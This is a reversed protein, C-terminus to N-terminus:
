ESLSVLKGSARWHAHEMAATASFAWCSGCRGQDKVPNVGGATRWDVAGKLNTDDFLHVEREVNEQGRYGMYKKMEYPTMTSFMNHGLQFNANIANEKKIIDDKEAFLQFRFLFEEKTGIM